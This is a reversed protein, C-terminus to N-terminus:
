KLEDSAESQGFVMEYVHDDVFKDLFDQDLNLFQHNLKEKIYSTRSFYLVEETTDAASVERDIEEPKLNERCWDLLTSRLSNESEAKKAFFKASRMSMVGTVLFLLFVAIMVGYFLYPNGLKLPIVEAIGLAVLVLGLIGIILLMWASSRNDDARESSDQYSSSGQFTKRATSAENLRQQVELLGAEAGTGGNTDANYGKTEEDERSRQEEQALFVRVAAAARELEAPLVQLESQGDQEDTIVESDKIGNYRLFDQLAEMQEREGFTLPVLTKIQEEEVLQCGCDACVTFGERYESKCKPCWPM